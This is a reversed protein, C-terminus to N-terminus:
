RQGSSREAASAPQSGVLGRVGALALLLQRPDVRELPNANIFAMQALGDSTVLDAATLPLLPRHWAAPEGFELHEMWKVLPLPPTYAIGFHQAIHGDEDSLLPFTLGAAERLARSRAPADPTIAVVAAGHGTIAPLAAQLAVLAARCRHSRSGLTFDVILPGSDLLTQVSVVMGDSDPLAFDPVMEGQQMAGEIIGAAAFWATIEALSSDAALGTPETGSGPAATSRTEFRTM